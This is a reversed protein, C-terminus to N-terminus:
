TVFYTDIFEFLDTMGHMKESWLAIVSSILWLFFAQSSCLYMSTLYCTVLSHISWHLFQLPFKFFHMSVFSFSFVITWFDKSHLWIQELLSTESLVPRGWLFYFFFLLCFGFCASSLFNYITFWFYIFDSIFVGFSCILSVLLQNKSFILLISLSKAPNMLFIHSSEFDSIFSSFYCSVSCFYM